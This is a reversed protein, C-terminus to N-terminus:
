NGSRTLYLDAIVPRHQSGEAGGVFCDAVGFQPGILIHDIRLFSFGFRLSHGWTHGFGLGGVSFADRLGTDLLTRVVLSTDPANFDGAVILPRQHSRLDEALQEAQTMRDTVNERWEDIGTLPNARTAALGSRPTAFHATVLDIEAGRVTVVCTVYTHDEERFPIDRRACDHLPFRSAVIYQGFSYAQRDGLISRATEPNANRGVQRADQLLVIDPDHQGIELAIDTLGNAQRTTVYDKINYTMVRLRGAGSQGRNFELGMLSTLVVILTAAAALRWIWGLMWSLGLAAFAPLLYVPYPAYQALAFLWFREPGMRYGAALVIVGAVVLGIVFRAVVRVLAPAANHRSPAARKPM